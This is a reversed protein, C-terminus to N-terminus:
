FCTLLIYLKHLGANTQILCHAATILQQDKQVHFISNETTKEINSETKIRTHFFTQMLQIIIYNLTQQKFGPQYKKDLKLKLMNRINIEGKINIAM